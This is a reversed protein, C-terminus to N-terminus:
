GKSDDEIKKAEVYIIGNLGASFYFNLKILLIDEIM